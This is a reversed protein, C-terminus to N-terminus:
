DNSSPDLQTLPKVRKLNRACCKHRATQRKHATV